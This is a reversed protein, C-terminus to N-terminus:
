LTTGPRSQSKRDASSDHQLLSTRRWLWGTFLQVFHRVFPLRRCWLPQKGFLQRKRGTALTSSHNPTEKLFGMKAPKRDGLATELGEGECPCNTRSISNCTGRATTRLGASAPVVTPLGASRYGRATSLLREHFGSATLRTAPFRCLRQKGSPKPVSGDCPQQSFLPIETTWVSRSEDPPWGWFEGCSSM